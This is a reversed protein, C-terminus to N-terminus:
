RQLVLHLVPDHTTQLLADDQQDRQDHHAADYGCGFPIGILPPLFASLKLPFSFLESSFPFGAFGVLDGSLGLLHKAPGIFDGPLTPRFSVSVFALGVPPPPLRVPSRPLGALWLRTDIGYSLDEAPLHLCHITENRLETAASHTIARFLKLAIHAL